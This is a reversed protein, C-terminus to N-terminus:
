VRLTRLTVSYRLGEQPAISHQWLSRAEGDLLYASGPTLRLRARRWAAGDRLRFRLDCEAGFSFGVIRDYDPRDRHWGIGAGPEYETILAQAFAEPPHDALTGAVDRLPSLWSPIVEAPWSRGASFDYRSGFAVTRRRGTFGHFEFPKFALLAFRDVLDAQLDAALARPRYLLGSPLGDDPLEADPFLSLTNVGPMYSAGDM